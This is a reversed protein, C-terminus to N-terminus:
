DLSPGGPTHHIGHCEVSNWSIGHYEMVNLPVGLRGRVHHYEMSNWSIGRYEMVNLPVRPRGRVHHYEMSYWSIGRYDQDLRTGCARHECPPIQRCACTTYGVHGLCGSWLYGKVGWFRCRVFSARSCLLSTKAPRDTHDSLGRAATCIIVGRVHIVCPRDIM